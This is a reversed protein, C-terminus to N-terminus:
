TVNVPRSGKRVAITRGRAVRFQTPVVGFAKRFRRAFHSPELFGCRASVENVSLADYRTDSMIRHALELRMRM